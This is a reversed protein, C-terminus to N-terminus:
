SFSLATRSVTRKGAVPCSRPFFPTYTCFITNGVIAPQIRLGCVTGPQVYMRSTHPLVPGPHARRQDGHYQRLKNKLSVTVQGTCANMHLNSELTTLDPGWGEEQLTLGYLRTYLAQLAAIPVQGVAAGVLNDRFRFPFAPVAMPRIFEAVEKHVVSWERNFFQHERHIAYLCALQASLTGGIAVGRVQRIVRNGIVFVDNKLVEYRAYELVQTFTFTDFNEAYGVGFHDLHKDDKCIAFRLEDNVKRKGRAESVLRHVETLADLVGERDLSPFFDQILHGIGM